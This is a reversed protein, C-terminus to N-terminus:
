EYKMNMKLVLKTAIKLIRDLRNAEFNERFYEWNTDIQNKTALNNILIGTLCGARDEMFKNIYFLPDEINTNAFECTYYIGHGRIRMIPCKKMLWVLFKDRDRIPKFKKFGEQVVPPIGLKKANTYDRVWREHEDIEFLKGNSYNM